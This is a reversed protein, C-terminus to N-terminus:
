SAAIKKQLLLCLAFALLALWTYTHAGVSFLFCADILCMGALLIGIAKPINRNDGPVLLLLGKTVWVLLAAILTFSMLLSSSGLAFYGAVVAPAFLLLAPWFSNVTNLHESRALYTIGAIYLMLSLGALVLKPSIAAALSAVTLYVALRCAGMLWASHPWSKHKWDYILILAVLTLSTVLSQWVQGQKAGALLLALALVIFASAFMSVEGVSTEGHVIPRNQKHQQDWRADFADNLFMGALYILSISIIAMLLLTPNGATGTFALGTLVNSWVTPMNSVRGLKLATTLKM